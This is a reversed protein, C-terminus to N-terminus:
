TNTRTTSYYLKRYVSLDNYKISIFEYTLDQAEVSKIYMVRFIITYVRYAIHTIAPLM